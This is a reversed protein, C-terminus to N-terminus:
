PELSGAQHVPHVFLESLVGGEGCAVPSGMLRVEHGPRLNAFPGSYAGHGLDVADGGAPHGGPHFAEVDQHAM